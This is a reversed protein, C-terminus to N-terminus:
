NILEIQFSPSKKGELGESVTSMQFSYLGDSLNALTLSTSDAQVEIISTDGGNFTQYLNFRDIINLDSGDERKEPIDWSLLIDNSKEEKIISTHRIEWRVPPIINCDAMQNIASQLAKDYRNHQSIFQGNCVAVWPGKMVISIEAHIATSFALLIILRFMQINKMKRLRQGISYRM